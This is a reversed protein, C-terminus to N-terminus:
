LPMIAAAIWREEARLLGWTRAAARSDMAELGIGRAELARILPRPPFVTAAGTGLLVFEPAPILDLLPALDGEALDSIAPPSWALVREPTLLAARHITGDISFGGDVYGQVLPGYAARERDFRRAMM